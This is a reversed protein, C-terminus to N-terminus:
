LLLRTRSTIAAAPGVAPFILDPTVGFEQEGHAAIVDDVKAVLVDVLLDVCLCTLELDSRYQM